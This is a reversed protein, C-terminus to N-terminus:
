KKNNKKYEEIVKLYADYTEKIVNKDEYTRYLTNFANKGIEELNNSKIIDKIKNAFDEYNNKVVFGNFGDKIKESVATNEIAITPKNFKSAEIHILGASDGTSPFSILNSASYIANLKDRNKIAGTFICYDKLNYKNVLKKLNKYESGDGVILCKVNENEKVLKNLALINIQNNKLKVLRGISTFLFSNGINYEKRIDFKNELGLTNEIANYIVLSDQKLGYNLLFNKCFNTVVFIKNAKNLRNVMLKTFIKSVLKSHILSYADSYFLGHCTIVVPINHRKGLKLGYFYMKTPFHCHIIDFKENELYSRFKKDGKINAQMNTTFKNYKGKCRVVKYIKDSDTYNKNQEKNYDVCAVTVDAFNYFQLFYALNSIVQSVGGYIPLFDECLLLVKLKKM